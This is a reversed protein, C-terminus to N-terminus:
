VGVILVALGERTGDDVSGVMGFDILGIREESEV